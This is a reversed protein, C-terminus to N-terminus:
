KAAEAQDALQTLDEALKRAFQPSIRVQLADTKKAEVQEQSAYYLLRLLVVDPASASEYSPM